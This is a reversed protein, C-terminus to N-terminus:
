RGVDVLLDIVNESETLVLLEGFTVRNVFQTASGSIQASGSSGFIMGEFNYVVEDPNTPSQNVVIILDADLPPLPEGIQETVRSDEVLEVFIADRLEPTLEGAEAPAPEEIVSGTSSSFLSFPLGVTFFVVLGCLSIIVVGAFLSILCGALSACGKKAAKKGKKRGFDFWDDLDFIDDLDFVFRM